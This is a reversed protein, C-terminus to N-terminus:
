SLTLKYPGRQLSNVLEGSREKRLEATVGKPKEAHTASTSAAFKDSFGGVTENREFIVCDPDEPASTTSGAAVSFKSLAMTDDLVHCFVEPDYCCNTFAVEAQIPDTKFILPSVGRDELLMADEALACVALAIM